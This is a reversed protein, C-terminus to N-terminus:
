AEAYLNSRLQRYFAKPLSASVKRLKWRRVLKTRRQITAPTATQVGYETLLGLKDDDLPIIIGFKLCLAKLVELDHIKPPSQGQQVLLAKIYKEACQQAHFTAGYTLPIKRRLSSLTLKYDEETKAVWAQPDNPDSM